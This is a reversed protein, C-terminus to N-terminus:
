TGSLASGLHLPVNIATEHSIIGGPWPAKITVASAEHKASPQVDAMYGQPAQYGAYAPNQQAVEAMTRAQYDPSQYPNQPHGAQAQDYTM